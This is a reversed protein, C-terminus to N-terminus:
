SRKLQHVNSLAARVFRAQRFLLSDTRAIAALERLIPVPTNGTALTILSAPKTRLVGIVQAEPEM